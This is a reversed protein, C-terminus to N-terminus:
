PIFKLHCCTPTPQISSTWDGGRGRKSALFNLAVMTPYTLTLRTLSINDDKIFHNWSIFSFHSSCDHSHYFILSFWYKKPIIISFLIFKIYIYGCVNLTFPSQSCSCTLNTLSNKDDRSIIGANLDNYWLRFFLISFFILNM